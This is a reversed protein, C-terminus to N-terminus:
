NNFTYTGDSHKELKLWIIEWITALSINLISTKYSVPLQFIVPIKYSM